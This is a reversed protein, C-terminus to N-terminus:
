WDLPLKAYTIVGCPPSPVGTTYIKARPFTTRSFPILMNGRTFRVTRVLGDASAVDALEDMLNMGGQPTGTDLTMWVDENVSACIMLGNTFDVPFNTVNTVLLDFSPIEGTTLRQLRKFYLGKPNNTYEPNTAIVLAPKCIYSFPYAAYNPTRDVVTGAPLPTADRATLNRLFKGHTGDKYGNNPNLFWDNAMFWCQGAPVVEIDQAPVGTGSKFEYALPDLVAAQYMYYLAEADDAPNYAM